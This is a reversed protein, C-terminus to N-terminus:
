IHILSLCHRGRPQTAFLLQNKKTKIKTKNTTKPGRNERKKDWGGLSLKTAPIRLKLKSIRKADNKYCSHVISVSRKFFM